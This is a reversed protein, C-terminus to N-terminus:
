IFTSNTVVLVIDCWAFMFGATAIMGTGKEDWGAYVNAAVCLDVLHIPKAM